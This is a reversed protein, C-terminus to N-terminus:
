LIFKNKIERRIKRSNHKDILKTILYYQFITDWCNAAVYEIMDEFSIETGAYILKNKSKEYIQYSDPDKMSAPKWTVNHPVIIFKSRVLKLLKNKM